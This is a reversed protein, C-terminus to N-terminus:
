NPHILALPRDSTIFYNPPKAAFFRWKMKFIIEAVEPVNSFAVTVTHGHDVSIKYNAPDFDDPTMSELDLGNEERHRKKFAEFAQPDKKFIASEMKLMKELIRVEFDALNQHVAPVRVFMMALFLALEIKADADLDRRPEIYERMRRAFATEVRSLMEE